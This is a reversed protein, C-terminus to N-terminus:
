GNGKNRFALAKAKAKALTVVDAAGLGLWHRRGGREYRFLWSRSGHERIQLYLSRAVRHFGPKELAEVQAQTFRKRMVSRRVSWVFGM